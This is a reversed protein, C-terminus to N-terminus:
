LFLDGVVTKLSKFHREPIYREPISLSFICFQIIQTSIFVNILQKILSIIKKIFLFGSECRSWFLKPNYFEINAM